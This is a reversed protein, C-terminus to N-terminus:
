ARESESDYTVCFKDAMDKLAIINTLADENFWPTGLHPVDCVMNSEMIGGNTNLVLSRESPRINTAYKRNCFITETYDSDLLVLNKMDMTQLIVHHLSSWSVHQENCTQNQNNLQTQNSSQQDRSSSIEALSSIKSGAGESQQVHQAQNIAWEESPISSKKTCDLLKQGHKGCCYCCGEMQAFSLTPVVDKNQTDNEENNHENGKDKTKKTKHSNNHGEDFCHKSLVNNSETM